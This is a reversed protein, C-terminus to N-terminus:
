QGFEADYKDFVKRRMSNLENQAIKVDSYNSDVSHNNTNPEISSANITAVAISPQGLHQRHNPDSSFIRRDTGQDSNTILISDENSNECFM